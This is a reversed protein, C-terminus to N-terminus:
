HVRSSLLLYLQATEALRKDTVQYWRNIV